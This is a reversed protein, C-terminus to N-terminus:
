GNASAAQQSVSARKLLQKVVPSIEAGVSLWKNAKELEVVLQGKPSPDYLGLRELFRGDRKCRSDAAVIHYVPRKKSGCRTLRLIVAMNIQKGKESRETNGASCLLRPAPPIGSRAPGNDVSIQHIEHGIGMGM